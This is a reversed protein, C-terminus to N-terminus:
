HFDQGNLKFEGSSMKNALTFCKAWVHGSQGCFHCIVASQQQQQPQHFGRAQGNLNSPNFDNSSSGNSNNFGSGNYGSPNGFSGMSNGQYRQFGGPNYNQGYKNPYDPYGRGRGSSHHGNLPRFTGRGRGRNFSSYYVDQAEEEYPAEAYASPDPFHSPYFDVCQSPDTYTHVQPATYVTQVPATHFSQSPVKSKDQGLTTVLSTLKSIESKLDSMEAVNASSESKVNNISTAMNQAMEFLNDLSNNYFPLLQLKIFDPMGNIFRDKLLTEPLALRDALSKLRYKFERVTEGQRLSAGQFAQLDGSVGNSGSFHRLFSNKLEALSSFKNTDMWMIAKEGLTRFFLEEMEPYKDAAQEATQEATLLKLEKLYRLFTVFHAQPCQKAEGLFKKPFYETFKPGSM